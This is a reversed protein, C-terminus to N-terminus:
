SEGPFILVWPSGGAVHEGPKQGQSWWKAEYPVLGLQVRTGAEYVEEPDWQPYTGEPLTPLPQPTDGPLVPGILTWPSDWQNAVPTDPAVGSTWYRAEYVQQRWVVKTGGPYTGLPDWIPFPSTKPDDVVDRPPVRTPADTAAPTPTSTPTRELLQALPLEAALTQAFSGSGQDVGSCGTQVVTLETPLPSRCTSDRNLSWMSVLGVGRSRAFENVVEADSLLFREGPLESQGIMPTIGTRAWGDVVNLQHGADAFLSRVQGHLANASRIIVDALPQDPGTMVNYNMTMGNVGTVDVGAALMQAVVAEGDETLGEHGVPLTIWVDLRGGDERARDQVAKVAEARRANGETDGLDAGEIDLDISTLEYRDVVQQYAAAVAEVDGCASALESGLQGGFSVRIDGGTSRLQSIRRDLQLESEAEKPTYYGGWSPACPDDPDAVVFALIVHSQAPGEPTEFPYRPTATVDVYGAFTAPPIPVAKSITSTVGQVAGWVVAALTILVVGLRLLSIRMRPEASPASPTM